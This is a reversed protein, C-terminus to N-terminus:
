KSGSNLISKNVVIIEKSHYIANHRKIATRSLLKKCEFCYHKNKLTEKDFGLSQILKEYEASTINITITKM